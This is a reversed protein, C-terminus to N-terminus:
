YHIICIKIQVQWTFAEGSSEFQPLRGANWLIMKIEDFAKIVLVASDHSLWEFGIGNVEVIQDGVCIGALDAPSGADVQSVYIGLGMEKGGRISFGLPHQRTRELWVTRLHKLAGKRNRLRSLPHAMKQYPALLDFEKHDHRPLLERIVPLLDLKEPTNFCSVLAKMLVPVNKYTSYEKLVYQVYERDGENLLYQADRQYEQRKVRREIERKLAM